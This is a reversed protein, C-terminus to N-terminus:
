RKPSTMGPPRKKKALQKRGKPRGAGRPNTPTKAHKQNNGSSVIEMLDKSIASKTVNLAEAIRQLTWEREGYLYEAIRKRDEKTIPKFGINSAIALKLRKADAENGSGLALKKIVPKIGLEEAVKMRRHGVLVVDHEDILAPFEDIWGFQKLSERLETLDGETIARINKAFEGDKPDFPVRTRNPPTTYRHWIL